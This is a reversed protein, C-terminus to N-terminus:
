SEYMWQNYPNDRDLEEATYGKPPKSWEGAHNPEMDHVEYQPSHVGERAHLTSAYRHADTALLFAAVTRGTRTNTVYYRLDNM